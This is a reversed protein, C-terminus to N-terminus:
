SGFHGVYRSWDLDKYIGAPASRLSIFIEVLIFLRAAVYWAMLVIYRVWPDFIRHWPGSRSTLYKWAITDEFDQQHTLTYVIMFYGAAVVLILASGRWMWMEFQTPFSYKWAAAHIGGFLSFLCPLSHSKGASETPRVTWTYSHSISASGPLTTTKRSGRAQTNVEM